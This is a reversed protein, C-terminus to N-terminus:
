SRDFISPYVNNVFLAPGSASLVKDVLFADIASAALGVAPSAVVGIATNAVFRITKGTGSQAFSQLRAAVGAVHAKVDSDSLADTRQLWERFLRCEDTDRAKLLKEADIRQSTDISPFGRLELVRGFQAQAPQPDIASAAIGLKHRFFDVDESLTGSLANHVQMQELRVNLDGIAMAARELAQHVQKDDLSLLEGLNSEIAFNTGGMATAKATIEAAPAEVGFAERAGRVVAANLLAQNQLDSAVGRLGAQGFGEPPQDLADAIARKFRIAEKLPGVGESANGLARSVYERQDQVRVMNLAFSGLPLPTFDPRGAFNAQGLQTVSIADCQVRLVGAQLLTRVGSAGFLAVLAPFERMHVSQMIYTDFLLVRRVFADPDLVVDNPDTARKALCPAILRNRITM